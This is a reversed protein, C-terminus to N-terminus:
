NRNVEPRVSVHKVFLYEEFPFDLRLGSHTLYCPKAATVKTVRQLELNLSSRTRANVRQESLNRISQECIAKVPLFKCM